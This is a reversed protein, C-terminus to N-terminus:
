QNPRIKRCCCCRPSRTVRRWASVTFWVSEKKRKGVASARHRCPSRAAQWRFRVDEETVSPVELKVIYYRDTQAVPLAPIRVAGGRGTATPNFFREFSDDFLRSLQRSERRMAVPFM